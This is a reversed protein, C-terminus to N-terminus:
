LLEDADRVEARLDGAEHIAHARGVVGLHLLDAADHEWRLPARVLIYVQGRLQGLVGVELHICAAAHVCVFACMCVCVAHVCVWVFCLEDCLGAM